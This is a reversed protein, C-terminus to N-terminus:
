NIPYLLITFHWREFALVYSHLAVELRCCSSFVLEDIFYLLVSAFHVIEFAHSRIHEAFYSLCYLFLALTTTAGLPPRKGTEGLIYM